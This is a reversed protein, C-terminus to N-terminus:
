ARGGLGVACARAARLLAVLGGCLGRSRGVGVRRRRACPVHASLIGLFVARLVSGGLAGAGRGRRVFQPALSLTLTLLKIICCVVVPSYPVSPTRTAHQSTPLPRAGTCRPQLGPTDAVHTLLASLAIREARRVGATGAEVGSVDLPCTWRVRGISCTWRCVDRGRGMPVRGM